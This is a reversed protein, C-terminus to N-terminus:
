KQIRAPIGKAVCYDPINKTVVSGAAVVSDKGITVGKLIIAGAGIWAGARIIVSSTVYPNSGDLKNKNHDHDYICVNPGITVNNEITISEMSVITTNRNIFGGLLRIHGGVAELLTNDEVISYNSIVIKGGKFSRLKVSPSIIQILSCKIKNLSLLRQLPLRVLNYIIRMGYIIKRSM